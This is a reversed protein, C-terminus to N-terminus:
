TGSQTLLAELEATCQTLDQFLIAHMGVARAGDCYEERDDTFVCEDLRVGLREATIEYAAPEPKAYGIEGSAVVADFHKALEESSFRRQLSGAGINSLLATKYNRRLKAIYALVAADKVEGSDIQERYNALTVGLVEAIQRSSEAPDMAGRNSTRVLDRIKDAAAPDSRRLDECLVQLADAIIVGFCDFIIAKIM